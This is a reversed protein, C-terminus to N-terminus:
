EYYEIRKVIGTEHYEVLKLRSQDSTTLAMFAMAPPSSDRKVEAPSDATKVDPGSPM